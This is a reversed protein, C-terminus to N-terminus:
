ESKVAFVSFCPENSLQDYQCKLQYKNAPLLVTMFPECSYLQLM